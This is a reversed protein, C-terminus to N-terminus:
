QNSSDALFDFFLYPCRSQLLNIGEEKAMGVVRGQPAPIEVELRSYEMAEYNPNSQLPIQIGAKEAAERELNVVV